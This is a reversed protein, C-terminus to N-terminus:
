LCKPCRSFLTLHGPGRQRGRKCTGAALTWFEFYSQIREVYLNGVKFCQSKLYGTEKRRSYNRCTNLHDRSILHQTWWIQWFISHNSTHRLWEDKQHNSKSPVPLIWPIIFPRSQKWYVLDGWKQAFFMEWEWTRPLSMTYVNFSQKPCDVKKLRVKINSSWLAHTDKVPIKRLGKAAQPYHGSEM